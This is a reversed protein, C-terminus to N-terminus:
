GKKAAGKSLLKEVAKDLAKGRLGTRYIKGNQDILYTAPISQVGYLQGVENKWWKGDYFQPWKMDPHAALFKDLVAKDEKDLSIGIIEFGKPNYKKYAAIVNPLEAICPGCWTAWFDLLVVKGKYSELSLDKGALDKVAFPKPDTGAAEYGAIQNDIFGKLRTNDAFKEGLSAWAAKAGDLDDLEDLKGASEMTVEVAQNLDQAGDNFFKTLAEKVPATSTATKATVVARLYAATAGAAKLDGEEKGAKDALFADLAALKDKNLKLNAAEAADAFSAELESLSTFKKAGQAPAAAALALLCFLSVAKKM